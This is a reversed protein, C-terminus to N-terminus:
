SPISLCHNKTLHFSCFVCHKILQVARDPIHSTLNSMSCNNFSITWCDRHDLLNRYLIASHNEYKQFQSRTLACEVSLIWSRNCSSTSTFRRRSFTLRCAEINLRSVLCSLILSARAEEAVPSLPSDPLRGSKVCLM